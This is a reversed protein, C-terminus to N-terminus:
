AVAETMTLVWKVYNILPAAEASALMGGLIGKLSLVNHDKFEIQSLSQYIPSNTLVADPASYWALGNGNGGQYDTM